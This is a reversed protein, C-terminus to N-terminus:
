VMGQNASARLLCGGKQHNRQYSSKKVEDKCLTCIRVGLQLAVDIDIDTYLQSLQSWPMHNRISAQARRRPPVPSGLPQLDM